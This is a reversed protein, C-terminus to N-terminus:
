ELVSNLRNSMMLYECHVRVSKSTQSIKRQAAADYQVLLVRVSGRATGAQSLNIFNAYNV